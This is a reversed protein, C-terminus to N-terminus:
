GGDPATWGEVTVRMAPREERSLRGPDILPEPMPPARRGDPDAAFREFGDHRLSLTVVVTGGAADLEEASFALRWTGDQDLFMERAEGGPVAAYIPKGQRATGSRDVVVLDLGRGLVHARVAGADELQTMERAERQGDEVFRDVGGSLIEGVANAGGTAGAGQGVPPASGMPSGGPLMLFIGLVLLGFVLIPAALWATLIVTQKRM